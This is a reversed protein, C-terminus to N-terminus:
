VLEAGDRSLRVPRQLLPYGQGLPITAAQQLTEWNDDEPVTMLVLSQSDPILAAISVGDPLSQQAVLIRAANHGDATQIATAEGNKLVNDLADQPFSRSLNRIALAHIGATDLGLQRLRAGDLSLLTRKGSLFYM